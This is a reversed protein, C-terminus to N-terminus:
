RSIISPTGTAERREPNAEVEQNNNTKVFAVPIKELIMNGSAETVLTQLEKDDKAKQAAEVARPDAIEYVFIRDGRLLSQPYAILWAEPIPAIFQNENPILGQTDIMEPILQQNKRIFFAAEKGVVAEKNKLAQGVVRETRVPRLAIDEPGITEGREISAAAVVVDVSGWKPIVFEYWVYLFGPGLLIILVILITYLVSKWRM